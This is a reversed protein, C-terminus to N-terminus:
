TRDKMWQDVAEEDWRSARGIKIQRPFQGEAIMAYIKTSGMGIKGKLQHLNIFRTM